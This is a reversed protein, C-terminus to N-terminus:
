SASAMLARMRDRTEEPVAASVNGETDPRIWLWSGAISGHLEFCHALPHVTERADGRFILTPVAIHRAAERLNYHDQLERRNRIAMYNSMVTKWDPGHQAERLAQEAPPLADFSGLSTNLAQDTAGEMAVIPKELMLSSVLDPRDAALRLAVRSGLSIGYVHARAIGLLGLLAIVDDVWASPPLEAVHASRGMSRLDPAIVRHTTSLGAILPALNVSSQTAGHLMLLPEGAGQDEWHHAFGNVTADAM